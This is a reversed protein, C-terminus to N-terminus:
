TRAQKVRRYVTSLDVGLIEAARGKNGGVSELVAAIYHEELEALTVPDKLLPAFRDVLRAGGLAEQAAALDIQQGSGTVVLREILNELERVNGPWPSAALAKLAEGSLGAVPTGPVRSRSRELFHEILPPIDEPRERLPPVVVRLVNLRFFLDERFREQAVLEDLDRHTAAICRVDVTRMSDAGVPRVEGSQLVRLLKAQLPLPMDGIEDLFM